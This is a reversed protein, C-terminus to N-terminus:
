FAHISYKPVISSGANLTWTKAQADAFSTTGVAQASFLPNGVLTGGSNGARIQVSDLRGSWPVFASGGALAGVNVAATSSFISTTSATTQQDFQSWNTGGATDTYFTITKGGAGNDVDLWAGFSIRGGNAVPLVATSDFSATNTGDPSWLFRIKGTAEVGLVYSRQNGTSNFKSVMALNFGTAWVKMRANVVALFIDTTIDFAAADPTSVGSGGSLLLEAGMLAPTLENSNWATINAVCEPTDRARVRKM